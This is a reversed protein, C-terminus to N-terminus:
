FQLKKIIPYSLHVICALRPKNLAPMKEVLTILEDGKMNVTDKILKM